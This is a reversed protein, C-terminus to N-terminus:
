QNQKMQTKEVIKGCRCQTEFSVVFFPLILFIEETKCPIPTMEEKPLLKPQYYINLM